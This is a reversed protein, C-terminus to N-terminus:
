VISWLLATPRHVTTPLHLALCGHLTAPLVDARQSRSTHSIYPPRSGRQGRLPPLLHSVHTPLIRGKMGCWSWKTPWVIGLEGRRRAIGSFKFVSMRSRLGPAWPPSDCAMGATRCSFLQQLANSPNVRWAHQFELKFATSWISRTDKLSSSQCMHALLWELLIFLGKKEIIVGLHGWPVAEFVWLDFIVIVPSFLQLRPINPMRCAPRNIDVSVSSVQTYIHQRLATTHNTQCKGRAGSHSNWQFAASSDCCQLSSRAFINQNYLERCLIKKNPTM